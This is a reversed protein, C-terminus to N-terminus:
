AFESAPQRDKTKDASFFVFARSYYGATVAAGMAAFANSAFSVLVFMPPNELGGVGPIALAIATNGVYFPFALIFMGALLRLGNGDTEHWSRELTWKGDGIAAAPMALGARLMVFFGFFMIALPILAAMISLTPPLRLAGVTGITVFAFLLVFLMVIGFLLITRGIYHVVPAPHFPVLGRPRENLIFFRHWTVAIAAM